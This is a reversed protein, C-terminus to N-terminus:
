PVTWTRGGHHEVIGRERPCEHSRILMIARSRKLFRLTVDHGFQVCGDGRSSPALGNGPHPDAWMCDFFIQDEQSRPDQPLQRRTSVGRLLEISM